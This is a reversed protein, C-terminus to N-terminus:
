KSSYIKIGCFKNVIPPILMVWEKGYDKLWTKGITSIYTKIVPIMKEDQDEIYELLKIDNKTCEMLYNKVIAYCQDNLSITICLEPINTFGQIVNILRSMHGTSCMGDMESLEEILREYLTNQTDTDECMKIFMCLSEFLEELTIDIGFTANEVHIRDIVQLLKIPFNPIDEVLKQIRVVGTPPYLKIMTKVAIKVSENISTEHVNQTDQYVSDDPKYIHPSVYEHLHEIDERDAQIYEILERARIQHAIDYIENSITDDDIYKDYIERLTKEVQTKEPKNHNIFYKISHLLLTVNYEKQHTFIDIALNYSHYSNTKLQIEM